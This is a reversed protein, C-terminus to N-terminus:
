IEKLMAAAMKNLPTVLLGMSSFSCIELLICKDRLQQEALSRPERALLVRAAHLKRALVPQRFQLVVQQGAGLSEHM